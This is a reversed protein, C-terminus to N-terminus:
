DTKDEDEPDPLQEELATIWEDNHQTGLWEVMAQLCGSNDELFSDMDRYGLVGIIKEFNNVGRGGEFHYMKEQDTYKEILESMDKDRRGETVQVPVPQNLGLLEQILKM